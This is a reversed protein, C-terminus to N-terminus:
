GAESAQSTKRCRSRRKSNPAQIVASEAERNKRRTVARSQPVSTAAMELFVIAEDINELESRLTDIVKQLEM